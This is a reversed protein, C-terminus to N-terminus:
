RRPRACFSFSYAGWFTTLSVVPVIETPGAWLAVAALLKVDGASFWRLIYLVSTIAFTAAAVGLNFGRCIGVL